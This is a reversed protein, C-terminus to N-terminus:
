RRQAILVGASILIAGLAQMLTPKEGIVPWAILAAVVPIMCMYISTRVGGILRVSRNYIIYCMVLALCGSYFISIVSRIGVDRWDTHMLGPVAAIMLGPTGTVMTLATVRLSSIKGIVTRLGLVYIAWSLVAGLVLLDGTISERSVSAGRMLMVIAVGSLALALGIATKRTIKEIGALRGALAIILPTTTVMLSSNASTTRAVGNVFFLQFSTNGIVGLWVLKWFSGGPFSLGGERWYLLIVLLVTALLFRVALFVYPDMEVLAAKIASYNGAWILVVVLMTLDPDALREAFSIKLHKVSSLSPTVFCVSYVSIM